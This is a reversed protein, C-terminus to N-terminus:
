VKFVKKVKKRNLQHSNGMESFFCFCDSLIEIIEWWVAVWRDRDIDMYSARKGILSVLNHRNRILGLRENSYAM